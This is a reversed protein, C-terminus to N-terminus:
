RPIRHRWTRLSEEGLLIGQVIFVPILVGLLYPCPVAPDRWRLSLDFPRSWYLLVTLSVAILPIYELHSHVHQELASIYRRPTSYASDRIGTLTHAIAVLGMLCLVLTTSELFLGLFLIVAIQAAQVLHFMSETFGSTTEISTRRHLGYDAIGAIVWLPLLCWFMFKLILDSLGDSM